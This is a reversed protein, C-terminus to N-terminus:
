QGNEVEKETTPLVSMEVTAKLSSLPNNVSQMIYNKNQSSTSSNLHDKELFMETNVPTALTRFVPNPFIGFYVVPILLASLIVIERINIDHTKYKGLKPGFFVKQMLRLAYVVSVILGLSALIGLLPNSLYTGLLVM